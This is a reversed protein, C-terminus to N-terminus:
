AGNIEGIKNVPTIYTMKFFKDIWYCSQFRKGPRDARRQGQRKCHSLLQKANPVLLKILIKMEMRVRLYQAFLQM